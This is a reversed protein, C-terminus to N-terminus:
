RTLFSLSANGAQSSAQVQVVDGPGVLFYEVSGTPILAGASAKMPATSYLLPVDGVIRVARVGTPVPVSSASTGASIASVSKLRFPTM